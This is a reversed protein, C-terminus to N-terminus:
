QWADADAFHDAVAEDIWNGRLGLRHEAERVGMVVLAGGVTATVVVPWPAGFRMDCEVTLHEGDPHPITIERTM